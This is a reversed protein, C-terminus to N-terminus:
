VRSSCARPIGRASSWRCRGAGTPGRDRRLAHSFTGVCAVSVHAAYSPCARKHPQRLSWAHAFRKVARRLPATRRQRSRRQLAPEHRTRGSYIHRRGATPKAMSGSRGSAARFGARGRLLQVTRRCGGLRLAALIAYLCTDALDPRASMRHDPNPKEQVVVRVAPRRHHSQSPPCCTRGIRGYWRM